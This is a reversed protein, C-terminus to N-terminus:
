MWLVRAYKFFTISFYLINRKEPPNWGFRRTIRSVILFFHGLSLSVYNVASHFLNAAFWKWNLERIPIALCEKLTNMLHSWLDSRLPKGGHTKQTWKWCIFLIDESIPLRKEFSEVLFATLYEM